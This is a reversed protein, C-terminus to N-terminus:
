GFPRKDVDYFLEITEPHFKQKALVMGEGFWYDPESLIENLEDIILDAFEETIQKGPKISRDVEKGQQSKMYDGKGKQIFLPHKFVATPYGSPSVGRKARYPWQKKNPFNTKIGEIIKQINDATDREISLNQLIRSYDPSAESYHTVVCEVINEPEKYTVSFGETLFEVRKQSETMLM